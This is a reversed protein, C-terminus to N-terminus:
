TKKLYNILQNEVSNILKTGNKKILITKFRNMQNNLYVNNLLTKFYM